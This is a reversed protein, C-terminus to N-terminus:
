LRRADRCALCTRGRWTGASCSCTSSVAVDREMSGGPCMGTDYLTGSEAGPLAL